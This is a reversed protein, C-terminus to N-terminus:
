RTLTFTGVLTFTQSGTNLTCFESGEIRTDTVSTSEFDCIGASFSVTNAQVTGTSIQVPGSNDDMGGDAWTCVGETADIVGGLSRGSQTLTAVGSATCEGFSASVLDSFVWEGAVEPLPAAVDDDCAALGLLLALALAASNRM